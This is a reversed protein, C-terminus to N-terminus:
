FAMRVVFFYIRVYPFLSLTLLFILYVFHHFVHASRLSAPSNFSSFFFFILFCMSFSFFTLNELVNSTMCPSFSALLVRRATPFPPLTSPFIPTTLFSSPNSLHFLTFFLSLSSFTSALSPIFLRLKLLQVVFKNLLLSRRKFNRESKNYTDAPGRIVIPGERM